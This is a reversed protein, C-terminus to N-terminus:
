DSGADGATARTAGEVSRAPQNPADYSSTAAYCPEAAEEESTAAMTGDQNAGKMELGWYWEREGWCM